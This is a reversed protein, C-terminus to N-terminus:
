IIHVDREKITLVSYIQAKKESVGVRRRRPVLRERDKSLGTHQSLVGSQPKARAICQFYM